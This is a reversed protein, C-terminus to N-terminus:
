PFTYERGLLPINALLADGFFENIVQNFLTVYTSLAAREHMCGIRLEFGPKIKKETFFGVCPSM